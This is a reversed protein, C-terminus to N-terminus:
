SRGQTASARPPGADLGKPGVYMQSIGAAALARQCLACPISTSYIIAGRLDTRGLRRQADWLAVREAHADINGDIVVRSPGLGVITTDLVIVAGFPQDGAAVAEDRQRAAEDIFTRSADHREGRAARMGSLVLLGTAASITGRRSMTTM